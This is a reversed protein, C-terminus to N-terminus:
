GLYQRFFGIAAGINLYGHAALYIIFLIFIVYVIKALFWNRDQSQLERGALRELNSMNPYDYYTSWGHSYNISM